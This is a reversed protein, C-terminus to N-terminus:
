DIIVFKGGVLYDNLKLPSETKDLTTAYDALAKYYDTRMQPPFEAQDAWEGVRRGMKVLRLMARVALQTLMPSTATEYALQFFDKLHSSQYDETVKQHKNIQHILQSMSHDQLAQVNFRKACLWLKALEIIAPLSKDVREITRNYMWNCFLGFIETEVEDIEFELSTNEGDADFM